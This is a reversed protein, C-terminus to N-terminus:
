SISKSNLRQRVAEYMIISGAIGANLSETGNSMPLTILADAHHEADRSIGHTENGILIAIAEQMNTDYPTQAGRPHAAYIKIHHTKLFEAADDLSIDQIIQVRLAAGASARIVKPNYFDASDTTLIIGTVGAATATRILTGVNGPDNLHEGVLIFPASLSEPKNDTDTFLDHLRYKKQRVIALIGQPTVTDSISVFLSNKIFMVPARQEFKNLNHKDAYDQHVAYQVIEWDDPIEKVFKEGEVVFMKHLDRGKKNKLAKLLHM